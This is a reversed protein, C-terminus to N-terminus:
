VLKKRCKISSSFYQLDPSRTRDGVALWFDDTYMRLTCLLISAYSPLCLLDSASRLAEVRGSMFMGGAGGRTWTGPPDGVTTSTVGGLALCTDINCFTKGENSVILGFLSSHKYRAIVKWDLRVNAPLVLLM